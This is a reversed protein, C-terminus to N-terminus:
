NVPQISTTYLQWKPAVEVAEWNKVGELGLIQDAEPAKLSDIRAKAATRPGISSHTIWASDVVQLQFTQIFRLFRLDSDPPLSLDVTAITHQPPGDWDITTALTTAEEQFGSKMQSPISILAVCQDDAFM